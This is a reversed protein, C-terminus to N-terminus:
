DTNGFRGLRDAGCIVQEDTIGGEFSKMLAMKPDEPVQTAGIPTGAQLQPQKPKESQSQPEALFRERAAILAKRTAEDCVVNVERAQVNTNVEVRTDPKRYEPFCLKLWEAHARWDKEGAARIASLAKQRAVERAENMRTELDPYRERWDALTSQGIGAAMCAQKHTLGDALATLLREVTEPQYKSPRGAKGQQDLTMPENNDTSM